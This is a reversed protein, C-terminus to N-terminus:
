IQQDLISRRNENKRKERALVSLPADHAKRQKRYCGLVTWGRTCYPVLQVFRLHAVNHLVNSLAGERLGLVSEVNSRPEVLIVPM